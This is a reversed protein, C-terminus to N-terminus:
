DACPCRKNDKVEIRKTAVTVKWNEIKDTEILVM